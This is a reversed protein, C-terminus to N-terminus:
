VASDQQLIERYADVTKRAIADLSFEARGVEKARLALRDRLNRDQLVTILREALGEVDGIPRVFGTEGDRILDPIGGADTGVQPVGAACAEGIAVPATEEISTMLLVSAKAYEARLTSDPVLGLIKVKPELWLRRIENAVEHDFPTNSPPGVFHMTANPVAQLTRAFARLATMPDKRHRLGGVVLVHPSVPQNRIAFVEDPAPNNVVFQRFDGEAPLMRAAYKSTIFVNHTRLLQRLARRARVKGRLRKVISPHTMAAEKWLIGHLSVAFPRQADIAAATALGLGQAHALDPQLKEMAGAISARQERWNSVQTARGSHRLFHITVGDREEDHDREVDPQCCVVHIEVDPLRALGRALTAAVATVGGPVIDRQVPYNGIMAVRM